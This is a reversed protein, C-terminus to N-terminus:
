KKCKLFQSSSLKKITILFLLKYIYNFIIEVFINKSLQTFDFEIKTKYFYYVM